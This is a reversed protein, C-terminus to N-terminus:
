MVQPAQIGLLNLVKELAIRSAEVLALRSNRVTEEARLVQCQNYFDNFVKALDYAYATLISTRFEKAARM